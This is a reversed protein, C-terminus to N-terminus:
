RGAEPADPRSFEYRIGTLQESAEWLQQGTAQDAVAAPV